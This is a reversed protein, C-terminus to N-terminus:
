GAVLQGYTTLTRDRVLAPILDLIRGCAANSRAHQPHLFVKV